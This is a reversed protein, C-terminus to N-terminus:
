RSRHGAAPKHTKKEEMIEGDRLAILATQATTSTAPIQTYTDYTGVLEVQGKSQLGLVAGAAPIDKKALPIKLSVIFDAIKAEKADGTVALKIVSATAQIVTGPVPTAKNKLAAWLKDADEKAGNALVYETDELNLRTLDPTEVILKHVIDAPTPAPTVSFTSPPFLATSAQTKVGDLGDTSGHYKKYWYELKKEIVPKYSEPAFEFARAYFWVANLIDPPTEKVYAEALQLTDVLGPGTKTADAPYLM